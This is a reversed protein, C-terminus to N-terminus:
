ARVRRIRHRWCRTDDFVAFRRCCISCLNNRAEFWAFALAGLFLVLGIIGALRIM